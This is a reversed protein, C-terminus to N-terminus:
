RSARGCGTPGVPRHGGAGVGADLRPARPHARGARAARRRPHVPRGLLRGAGQHQPQLRGPAARRGDGRGRGHAPLDPGPPDCSGRGVEEWRPRGGRPCGCRATPSPWCRRVRRRGASPRDTAPRRHRGAVSQDGHGAPRGGRGARRTPRLRQAAPAREHFDAVDAVTLEHSQGAYRCDSPRCPGGHRGGARRWGGPRGGAQRVGAPTPVPTTPPARGAACWTSRAPRASSAWRRCCAPAPRCSWRPWARARRRHRLCAAPGRRRLRGAGARAPRRGARRVRGARGAGHRRRRRHDRGEATM